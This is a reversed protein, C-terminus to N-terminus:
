SARVLGKRLSSTLCWRAPPEAPHAFPAAPEPPSCAADHCLILSARLVYEPQIVHNQASRQRQTQDRHKQQCEERHLRLSRGLGARRGLRHSRSPPTFPSSLSYATAHRFAAVAYEKSVLITHEALTACDIRRGGRRASSFVGRESWTSAPQLGAQMVCRYEGYQNYPRDSTTAKAVVVAIREQNNGGNDDSVCSLRKRHSFLRM